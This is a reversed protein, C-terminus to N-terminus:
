LNASVYFTRGERFVLMAINKLDKSLIEELKAVDKIAEGNVELVVDGERLGMRQGISGSLVGTIVAGGDEEISYKQRLEPTVPSVSIGLKSSSVPEEKTPAESVDSPVTSLTVMKKGQVGKSLVTLEVKEGALHQRIAVVLDGPDKVKRGDIETIVDGRAVGAKQAPSGKVVDAVLAGEGAKIGYASAFEKTLPQLYVGLWGRNVKGYQILDDVIQKAMNVPIAFGIGQAYPVIATNIGIVRGSLDLLPGGSNGPNIAADTQIFGDFNLNRARVSRNKASVVGVTVSSEFGYPNGIAIVWEGVDLKDSDGMPITPLDKADIKIVALDYSPDKGVIKAPFSRGDSLTVEITMNDPGDVVHNNTLIYGDHTVIFGSGKGRMPVDRTFRDFRDGFFERFFPDDPFPSSSRQVIAETDINVVAPATEKVIRAIPNGTFVDQAAVPGPSLSLVVAASLLLLLTATLIRTGKYSKM